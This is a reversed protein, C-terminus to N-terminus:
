QSAYEERYKRDADPIGHNHCFEHFMDYQRRAFVVSERLLEALDDYRGTQLLFLALERGEDHYHKM